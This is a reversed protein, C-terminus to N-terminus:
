HLYQRHYPLHIRDVMQEELGELIHDEIRVSKDEEAEFKGVERNLVMSHYRALDVETDVRVLLHMKM